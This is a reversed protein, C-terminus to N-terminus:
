KRRPLLPDDMEMSHEPFEDDNVLKVEYWEFNAQGPKPKIPEGWRVWVPRFGHCCKDREEMQWWQWKHKGSDCPYWLHQKVM